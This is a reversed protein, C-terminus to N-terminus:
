YGKLCKEAGFTCINMLQCTFDITLLFTGGNETEVLVGAVKFAM